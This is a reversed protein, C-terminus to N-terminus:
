GLGSGGGEEGVVRGGVTNAQDDVQRGADGGTCAGCGVLVLVLVGVAEAVVARVLERWRRLDGLGLRPVVPEPQPEEEVEDEKM